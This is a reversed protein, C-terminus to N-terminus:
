QQPQGGVAPGDAEEDKLPIGDLLDAMSVNGAEMRKLLQESGEKTTRFNKFSRVGEPGRNQVQIEYM